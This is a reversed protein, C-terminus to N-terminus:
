NHEPQANLLHAFTGAILRPLAVGAEMAAQGPPSHAANTVAVALAPALPQGRLLRGADAWAAPALCIAAAAAGFLFNRLSIMAKGGLTSEFIM